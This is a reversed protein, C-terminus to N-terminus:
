LIGPYWPYRCNSREVFSSQFAIHSDVVVAMILHINIILFSGFTGVERCLVFKQGFHPRQLSTGSHKGNRAKSSILWILLHVKDKFHGGYRPTFDTKNKKDKMSIWWRLNKGEEGKVLQLDEPLHKLAFLSALLIMLLLWSEPYQLVV